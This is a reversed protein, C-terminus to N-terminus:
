VTKNKPHDVTGTPPLGTRDATVHCHAKDNARDYTNNCHLPRLNEVIDSGGLSDNVIKWGYDSSEHEYATRRLWAGCEDQRWESADREPLGRAKEWVQQILAESFAM